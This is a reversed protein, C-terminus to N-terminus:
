GGYTESYDNVRPDLKGYIFDAIFNALLVCITVVLFIGQILPYDRVMVAERMLHGLGPYAFVNEVLIAGGVLSGLSLFVRTVIPLMANRLVHRFIVRKESLGKARATRLYDKELVTIVSNRSLLYMGGTRAITLAIVPLFAHHLIDLVKEWWNEYGAFHTMAGSLPFLGLGAAFSFLLVLGLLFAPIESMIILNFFLFKDLWKERYWASISGLVTGIFTSLIVAAIVLFFTWALRRLIIHSVPENYYLSHGLNGRLLESMYSLYQGGVPRDLGYYALYYQRQEESFIVEEGVDSSLYLFPDGPMARPLLFNLTVIVWVTFFYEALRTVRKKNM